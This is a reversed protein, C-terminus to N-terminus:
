SEQQAGGTLIGEEVCFACDCIGPKKVGASEMALVQDILGAGLASRETSSEWQFGNFTSEPLHEMAYVQWNLEKLDTGLSKKWADAVRRSEAAKSPGAQRSSQRRRRSAPYKRTQIQEHQSAIRGAARAQRKEEQVATPQLRDVEEQYRAHQPEGGV